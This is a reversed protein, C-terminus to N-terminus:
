SGADMLGDKLADEMTAYIAINVFIDNTDGTQAEKVKLSNSLPQREQAFYVTKDTIEEIKKGLIQEIKREMDINRYINKPDRQIDQAKLLMRKFSGFLKDNFIAFPERPAINDLNREIAKKPLKKNKFVDTLWKAYGDPTKPEQSLLDFLFVSTPMSGCYNERMRKLLEKKDEGSHKMRLYYEAAAVFEEENGSGHETILKDHQEALYKIGSVYDLYLKTLEDTAFGHMLEHYIIDTNMNDHIHTLFSNGNLKFAVPYSMASMYIKVDKAMEGPEGGKLRQIDALAADINMGSYKEEERVIKEKIFPLLDTEWLKDFGVNKLEGIMAVYKEASEAVFQDLAPYIFSALYENTIRSKVTARMDEPNKFIKALDDLTCHELYDGANEKYTTLIIGVDSMSHAGIKVKHAFDASIGDIKDFLAKQETSLAGGHNYRDIFCIADLAMSPVIKIRAM